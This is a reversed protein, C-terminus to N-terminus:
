KLLYRVIMMVNSSNIAIRYLVYGLSIGVIFCLVLIIVMVTISFNEENEIAKDLEKEEKDTYMMRIRRTKVKKQKKVNNNIKNLDRNKNSCEHNNNELTDDEKIMEDKTSVRTIKRSRVRKTVTM